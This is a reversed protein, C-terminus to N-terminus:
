ICMLTDITVHGSDRLGVLNFQADEDWISFSLLYNDKQMKRFFHWLTVNSFFFYRLQGLGLHGIGKNIQVQNKCIELKFYRTQDVPNKGYNSSSKEAQWLRYFELKFYVLFWTWWVRYKLSPFQLFRTCISLPFLINFAYGIM